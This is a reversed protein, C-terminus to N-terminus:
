RVCSIQRADRPGSVAASPPTAEPDPDAHAAPQCPRVSNEGERGEGRGERRGKEGGKEGGGGKGERRGEM